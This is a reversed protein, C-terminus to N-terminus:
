YDDLDSEYRDGEQDQVDDDEGSLEDRRTTAKNVRARPGGYTKKSGTRFRKQELAYQQGRTYDSEDQDYQRRPPKRQGDRREREQYRERSRPETRDELRGRGGQWNSGDDRNALKRKLKEVEEQLKKVETNDNREPEPGKAGNAEYTQPQSTRVRACVSRLDTCVEAFTASPKSAHTVVFAMFDPGQLRSFLKQSKTFEDYPLEMLEREEFLNELKEVVKEAQDYRTAPIIRDLDQDIMACNEFKISPTCYTVKFQTLAAQLRKEATVTTDELQLRLKSYVPPTLAKRFIGLATNTYREFKEMDEQYKKMQTQFFVEEQIQSPMLRNFDMPTYYPWSGFRGDYPVYPERSSPASSNTAGASSHHDIGGGYGGGFGGGFERGFGAGFGEGAHNSANTGMAPSRSAVGRDDWRSALTSPEWFNTPARLHDPFMPVFYREPLPQPSRAFPQRTEEYTRNPTRFEPLNPLRPERGHNKTITWELHKIQLEISYQRIFAFSKRTDGDYHLTTEEERKRQAQM